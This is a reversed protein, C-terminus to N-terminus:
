SVVNCEGGLLEHTTRAKRGSPRKETIDLLTRLGARRPPVVRNSGILGGCRSVTTGHLGDCRVVTTRTRGRFEGRKQTAM